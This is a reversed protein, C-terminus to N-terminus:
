TAGETPDSKPVAAPVVPTELSPPWRLYSRVPRDDELGSFVLTHGEQMARVAQPLMQPMGQQGGSIQPQRGSFSWSATERTTLGTRESLYTSTKLDQPQFAQLIGANSAFTEWHQGYIRTAQSLDQWVSWLTLGYGRMMAMNRSIAPFGDGEALAPFEDLILVTRNEPEKTDKMLPRLISAVVLRIWLNHTGIRDPPLVIYITVPMIKLWGRAIMGMFKVDIPKTLDERILPSDLWRTQTLATSLISNLERNTSDINTYRGMKAALAPYKHEYAMELIKKAVTKFDNHTEKDETPLGIVDRVSALNAKPKPTEPPWDKAEAAIKENISEAMILACVLDQASAAWHPESGEIRIM